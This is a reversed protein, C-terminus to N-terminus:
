VFDVPKNWIALVVCGSPSAVAHESGPRSILLSGAVYTGNDDRQDGALVFIHEYGAHRHRPVSAGPQYKLLAAAPQNDEGGYLRHIMVGDRFPEWAIRDPQAGIALLHHLVLHTHKEDM